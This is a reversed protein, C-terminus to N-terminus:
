VFYLIGENTNIFNNNKLIDEKLVFNNYSFEMNEIYKGDKPNSKIPLRFREGSNYNVNVYDEIIEVEEEILKADFLSKIYIAEKESDEILNNFDISLKLIEEKVNDISCHLYSKGMIPEFIFDKNKLRNYLEEYLEENKIKLYIKFEVENLFAETQQITKARDSTISLETSDNICCETYFVDMKKIIAVEIKDNFEELYSVKNNKKFDSFGERGSIAALMGLIAPKHISPYSLNDRLSLKDKFFAFNGKIEFSILKNNM